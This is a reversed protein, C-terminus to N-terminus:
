ASTGGRTITSSPCFAAWMALLFVPLMWGPLRPSWRGFGVYAMIGPLFYGMAVPFNHHDSPVQHATIVVLLWFVLLPWLLFHRRVFFFIAPLLIYM